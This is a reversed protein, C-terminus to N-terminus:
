PGHVSEAEEAHARVGLAVGCSCPVSLDPPGSHRDAAQDDARALIELDGPLYSFDQPYGLWFTLWAVQGLLTRLAVPRRHRATRAPYDRM